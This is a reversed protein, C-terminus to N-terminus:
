PLRLLLWPTMRLAGSSPARLIEVALEQWGSRAQAPNHSGIVSEALDAVRESALEETLSAIVRLAGRWLLWPTMRLAGPSPARLIEVAM